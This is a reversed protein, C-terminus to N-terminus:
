NSPPREIRDFSLGPAWGHFIAARVTWPQPQSDRPFTTAGDLESRVAPDVRKMEISKLHEAETQARSCPVEEIQSYLRGLPVVEFNTVKASLRICYHGGDEVNIVLADKGPKDPHWPVTFAHEGAKLHLTLFRGARVHAVRQPGDFLWGGFPQTSKPLLSAATNKATYAPTYFTVAGTQAVCPVASVIAILAIRLLAM